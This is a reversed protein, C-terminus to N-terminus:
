HEFAAKFIKDIHKINNDAHFLKDLDKENIYKKVEPDNKLIEDFKQNSNLSKVAASQIFNYANQRSMGKQTLALLINQSKHLGLLSELNKKMKKPYIILNNIIM